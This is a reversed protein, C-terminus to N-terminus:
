SSLPRTIYWFCVKAKRLKELSSSSDYDFSNGMRCLCAGIMTLTPAPPNHTTSSFSPILNTLFDQLFCLPPYSSMNQWITKIWLKWVQMRRMVVVTLFLPTDTVWYIKIQMLFYCIIMMLFPPPRVYVIIFLSHTHTHSRIWPQEEQFSTFLYLCTLFSTLTILHFVNIGFPLDEQIYWIHFTYCEDNM